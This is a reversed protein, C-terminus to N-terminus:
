HSFNFLYKTGNTQDFIMEADIQHSLTDILLLGLSGANDFDVKGKLGIGNDSVILEVMDNKKKLLSVRVEGKKGKPFAFKLSNSIIENLILGLSIAKSIDFTIDDCEIKLKILKSDISYNQFLDNTLRQIYIPFNIETFSKSKFINDHVLAMSRVRNQMEYILTKVEIDDISHSQLNLMSVIVQLNNKVRHHVEQLLVEKEKLQDELEKEKERRKSVDYAINVSGIIENDENLINRAFLLITKIKNNKAIIELELEDPIAKNLLTIIKRQASHFTKQSSYLQIFNFNENIVEDIKYGTMKEAGINWSLVKMNNDFVIFMINPNEFFVKHFGNILSSSLTPIHFYKHILEIENEVITNKNKKM